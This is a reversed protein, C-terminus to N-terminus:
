DSQSSRGQNGLMSEITFQDILMVIAKSRLKTKNEIFIRLNIIVLLLDEAVKNSCQQSLLDTTCSSIFSVYCVSIFINRCIVPFVM